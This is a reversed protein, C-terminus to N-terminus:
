KGSNMSMVPGALSMKNRKKKLFKVKPKTVATSLNFKNINIICKAYIFKIILIWAVNKINETEIKELFLIYINKANRPWNTNTIKEDDVVIWSSGSHRLMSIYYGEDITTGNHFIASLIKYANDNIRLKTTPISKIGCQQIKTFQDNVQKFLVLQIILVKSTTTIEVKKLQETGNCLQCPLKQKIWISYNQKILETLDYSKKSKEPINLLISFNSSHHLKTNDCTVCRSTTTFNNEVISKMFHFKSCFDTIFKGADQKLNNLYTNGLCQRVEDLTIISKNTQYVNIFRRIVDNDDLSFIASRISSCYLMCQMTANAYSYIKNNNLIGRVNWMLNKPIESDIIQCEQINKPIMWMTDLMKRTNGEFISINKLPNYRTLVSLFDIKKYVIGLFLKLNIQECNKISLISSNDSSLVPNNKAHLNRSSFINVFTTYFNSLLRNLRKQTITYVSKSFM